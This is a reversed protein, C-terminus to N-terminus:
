FITGLAPKEMEACINLHYILKEREGYGEGGNKLANLYDYFADSVADIESHRIFIHTYREFAEWRSIAHELLTVAQTNDGDSSLISAAEVYDVLHGIETGFYHANYLGAGTLLLLIISGVIMKRM